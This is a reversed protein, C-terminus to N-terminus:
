RQNSISKLHNYKNRGYSQRTARQTCSVGRLSVLLFIVIDVWCFSDIRDETKTAANTAALRKPVFIVVMKPMETDTPIKAYGIVKKIVSAISSTNPLFGTVWRIYPAKIACTNTNKIIRIAILRGGAPLYSCLSAYTVINELEKLIIIALM